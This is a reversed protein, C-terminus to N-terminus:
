LEKFTWDLPFQCPWILINKVPMFSTRSPTTWNLKHWLLSLVTGMCMWSAPLAGRERLTLEENQLYSNDPIFWQICPSHQFGYSLLADAKRLTANLSFSYINIKCRDTSRMDTKIQTILTHATRVDLIGTTLMHLDIWTSPSEWPLWDVKMMRKTSTWDPSFIM